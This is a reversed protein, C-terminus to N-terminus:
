KLLKLRDFFLKRFAYGIPLSEGGLTITSERPNISEAFEINILYSKHIRAFTNRFEDELVKLQVNTPFNRNGVRAYTLKQDAYFYKIDKIPISKYLDGVKFFFQNSAIVLPKNTRTESSPQGTEEQPTDYILMASDIAVELKFQSVEKSMFGSPRTHQTKQYYDENYHSTMYIIPVSAKKERIREALKIGTNEGAELEIDLICLDPDEAQFLRFGTDFNNAVWFKEVGIQNLILELLHAFAPNDEVILIRLHRRSIM